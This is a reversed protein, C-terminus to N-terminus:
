EIGGITKVHEKAVADVTNDFKEKMAFLGRKAIEETKYRNGNEDLRYVEVYENNEQLM